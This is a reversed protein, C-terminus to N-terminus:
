KQEIKLKLQMNTERILNKPGYVAIIIVVVTELLITYYANGLLTQNLPFMLASLNNSTHFIMAILISGNSNNYLWTFIISLIIIAITFSFFSQNTYPTGIIFFLPLHWLSWFGGLILSSELANWNSQFRELAYGRWGFEEQFPGGLFFIFLFEVFIFTYDELAGLRPFTIGETAIALFLSLLYLMPLLFFAILLFRTNKYDWGRSWLNRVGGTGEFYSTLSFAAVFPGFYGILRLGGYLPIEELIGLSSLLSPLWLIWSFLFTIILYLILHKKEETLYIPM